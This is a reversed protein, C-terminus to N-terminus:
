EGDDSDGEGEGEGEGEGNGNRNNMENELRERLRERAEESMFEPASLSVITGVIASTTLLGENRLLIGDRSNRIVAVVGPELHKQMTALSPFHELELPFPEGREDAEAKAARASDRLLEYNIAILAPEDAWILASPNIISRDRASKFRESGGLNKALGKHDTAIREFRARSSTILLWDGALEGAVAKNHSVVGVFLENPQRLIADEASRRLEEPLNAVGDLSTQRQHKLDFRLCPVNGITIREVPMNKLGGEERLGAIWRNLFDDLGTPNRRVAAMVTLESAFGPDDPVMWFAAEGAIASTLSGEVDLGKAAMEDLAERLRLYEDPAYKQLAQLMELWLIQVDFNGSGYLVADVPVFRLTAMPTVPLSAAALLGDRVGPALIYATEEMRNRSNLGTTLGIAEVGKLGTVDLLTQYGEDGRNGFEETSMDELLALIATADAYVFMAQGRSAGVGRKVKRFRSNRALSGDPLPSRYKDIAGKIVDLQLSVLFSQNFIAYYFAYQDGNGTVKTVEVGNYTQTEFGNNKSLANQFWGLANAFTETARDIDLVLLMRPLDEIAVRPMLPRPPGEGEGEGDGGEGEGGEGEGNGDPQMREAQDRAQQALDSLLAASPMELLAISVQQEFVGMLQDFDLGIAGTMGDTAEKMRAELRELLPKLMAQSSPENWLQGLNWNALAEQLAPVDPCSIVLPTNEPVLYEIQKRPASQAFATNVLVALAAIACPLLFSLRTPRLM